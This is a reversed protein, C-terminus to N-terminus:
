VASSDAYQLFAFGTGVGATQLETKMAALIVKPSGTAEPLLNEYLVGGLIVGYGTRADVKSDEHADTALICTAPNTSAARPSIKGSGLLTGCVTGAKLTKAGSGAFTATDAAEIAADLAEVTLSTAGVAAAATTISFEGSGTWNLVTGSPIAVTLASVPISTAGAAAGAGTTVIQGPTQRYQEGVNAWDVQHGGDYDLSDRDAVFPARSTPYTTTTPM